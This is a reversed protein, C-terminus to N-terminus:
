AKKSERGGKKEFLDQELSRFEGVIQQFMRQVAASELPGKNAEVVNQFVERERRQDQVAVGNQRKLKGIELVVKARENLLRVVERDLEDIQKRWDTLDM